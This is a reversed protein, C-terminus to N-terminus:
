QMNFLIYFSNYVAAKMKGRSCSADVRYTNCLDAYSNDRCVTRLCKLRENDSMIISKHFNLRRLDVLREIPLYGSFMIIDNIPSCPPMGYIRRVSKRWCSGLEAICVEDSAFSETCYMLFPVCYSSALQMMVPEAMRSGCKSYLGNFSRFFNVDRMSCMMLLYSEQM